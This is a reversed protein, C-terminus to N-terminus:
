SKLYEISTSHLYTCKSLWFHRNDALTCSLQWHAGVGARSWGKACLHLPCLPLYDPPLYAVSPNVYSEASGNPCAVIWGHGAALHGAMTASPATNGDTESM